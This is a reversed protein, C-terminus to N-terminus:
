IVNTLTSQRSIPGRSSTPTIPFKSISPSPAHKSISPSSPLHRSMSLSATHGSVSSAPTQRSMSMATAHRSISPSARGSMSSTPMHRGFAPSASRGFAPSAASRSITTKRSPPQTITGSRYVSSSWLALWRQDHDHRHLLLAQRFLVCLATIEANTPRPSQFLPRAWAMAVDVIHLNTAHPLIRAIQELLFKLTRESTKDLTDAKFLESVKRQDRSSEWWSRCLDPDAALSAQLQLLPRPLSFFLYNMLGLAEPINRVTKTLDSDEREVTVIVDEFRSASLKPTTAFHAAEQEDWNSQELVKTCIKFAEGLIKPVGERNCALYSMPICFIVRKMWGMAADHRYLEPPVLDQEEKIYSCLQPVDYLAPQWTMLKEVVKEYRAARASYRETTLSSHVLLASKVLELTQEMSPQLTPYGEKYLLVRQERLTNAVVINKRYDSDATNIGPDDMSLLSSTSANRSHQKINKLSGLRSKSKTNGQQFEKCRKEYVEKSNECRRVATLYSQEIQEVDGPPPRSNRIAQAGSRFNELELKIREYEEQGASFEAQVLSGFQSIFNGIFTGKWAEALPSPESSLTGKVVRTPYLLADIGSNLAVLEQKVKELFQFEASARAELIVGIQDLVTDQLNWIAQPGKAEHWKLAM